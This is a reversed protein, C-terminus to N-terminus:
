QGPTVTPAATLATDPYASTTTTPTVGPYPNGATPTTLPPTATPTPTATSVGAPAAAQTSHLTATAAAGPAAPAATQTPSPTHTPAGTPEPLLTETASLAMPALLPAAPTYDSRFAAPGTAASGAPPALTRTPVSASGDAKAPRGSSGSVTQHDRSSSSPAETGSVLRCSVSILAVVLFVVLFIYPRDKM